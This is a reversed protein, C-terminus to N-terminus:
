LFLYFFFNLLFGCRSLTVKRSDDVKQQRTGKDKSSWTWPQLLSTEVALHWRQFPPSMRHLTFGSLVVM